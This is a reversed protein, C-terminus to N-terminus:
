LPPPISLTLLALSTPLAQLTLIILCPQYTLGSLAYIKWQVLYQLQGGVTRQGLVADVELRSMRVGSAVSPPPYIKKVM